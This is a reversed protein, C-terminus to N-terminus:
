LLRRGHASCTYAVVCISCGTRKFSERSVDRRSLCSLVMFAVMAYLQDLNIRTSSKVGRYGEM